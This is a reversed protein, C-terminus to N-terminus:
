NKKRLEPLWANLRLLADEAARQEAEKKTPATGKGVVKRNVRVRAVFRHDQQRQTSYSPMLGLERVTIEQLVGKLDGPARGMVAQAMRRQLRQHIWQRVAPYGQDLYLAGILAEVIDALVDQKREPLTYGQEQLFSELGLQRALEALLTGSVLYGKCASLVGVRETPFDAMLIESIALGLVADGLFELKEVTQQNEAGTITWGFLALRYLQPNKPRIQLRERLFAELM